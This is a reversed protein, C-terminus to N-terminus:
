RKGKSKDAVLKAIAQITEPTLAAGAEGEAPPDMLGLKGLAAKIAATDAAISELAKAVKMATVAPAAM